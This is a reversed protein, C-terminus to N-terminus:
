EYSTCGLESKYYDMLRHEPTQADCQAGPSLACQKETEYLKLIDEWKATDTLRMSKISIGCGLNVSKCAHETERGAASGQTFIAGSFVSIFSDNM